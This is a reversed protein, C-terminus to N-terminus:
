LCPCCGGSAGQDSCGHSGLIWAEVEDTTPVRGYLVVQDDVVFGPTALIPYQMIQAMNEVKLIQVEAGLKQSVKQILKFANQCAACGSGLVKITKM